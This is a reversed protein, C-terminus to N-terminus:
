FWRRAVTDLEDEGMKESRNPQPIELKVADPAGQWAGLSLIASRQADEKQKTM